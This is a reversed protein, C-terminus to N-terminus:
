PAPGTRLCGPSCQAIIDGWILHSQVRPEKRAEREALQQNCASPDWTIDRRKLYDARLQLGFAARREDVHEPDELPAVPITQSWVLPLAPVLAILAYRPTKM